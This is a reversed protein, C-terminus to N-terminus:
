SCGSMQRCSWITKDRMEQPSFGCTSLNCMSALYSGKTEQSILTKSIQLIVSIVQAFLLSLSHHEWDGELVWRWGLVMSAPLSSQRNDRTRGSPVVAFLRAGNEVGVKYVNTLVSLIEERDKGSKM